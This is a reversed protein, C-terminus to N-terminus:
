PGGMHDGRLRIADATVRNGFLPVTVPELGHRQPWREGEELHASVSVDKEANRLGKPNRQEQKGHERVGVKAWRVM